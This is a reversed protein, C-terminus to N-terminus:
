TPIEPSGAVKTSHGTGRLAGGAARGAGESGAAPAANNDMLVLDVTAPDFCEVAEHGGRALLVRCAGAQHLMAEGVMLNIENDDVLLVTPGCSARTDSHM